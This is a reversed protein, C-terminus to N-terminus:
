RIAEPQVFTPNLDVIADRANGLCKGGRPMKEGGCSALLMSVVVVGLMFVML